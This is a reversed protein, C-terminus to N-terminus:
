ANKTQRLLEPLFIENVLLPQEYLYFVSRRGWIDGPEEIGDLAWAYKQTGPEIRAIEIPERRMGPNSFLVAGLPRTGLYMLGRLKGQIASRPIVTHAFVWPVGHCLLHVQRVFALEDFAMNLVDAESLQPRMWAQAFPRVRFDGKSERILRQTLSSEDLLWSALGAPLRARNIQRATHWVPKNRLSWSSM